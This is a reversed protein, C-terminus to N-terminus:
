PELRKEKARGIIYDVVAILLSASVASVLIAATQYSEYPAANPPRFPWPAYQPDRDNDVYRYIDFVELSLFLTIPFSGLMIIEARRLNRLFPAFEEEQYEEPETDDANQDQSYVPLALLLLACLILALRRSM